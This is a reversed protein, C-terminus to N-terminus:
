VERQAPRPADECTCDLCHHEACVRCTEALRKRLAQRARHHRVKLNKATIGLRQAMENSPEGRLDLHDILTAYEARLGPLLAAFCECLAAHVQEEEEADFDDVLAVELTRARTRYADTIANRLIGYFWPILSEQSRLSGLSEAAKLLSTQVVDEAVQPDSIRRRAYGLFRERFGALTEITETSEV